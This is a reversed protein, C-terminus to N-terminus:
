ASAEHADGKGLGRLEREHDQEADHEIRALALGVYSKTLVDNKVPSRRVIRGYHERRNPSQIETRRKNTRAM